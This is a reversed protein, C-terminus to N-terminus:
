KAYKFGKIQFYSDKSKKANSLVQKKTLQRANLTETSFRNTLGTTQYTPKTKDTRIENLNDIFNLTETIEQAWKKLESATLTLQVLVAIHQIDKRSLTPSKPKSM